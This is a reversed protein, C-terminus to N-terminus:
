AGAKRVTIWFRLILSSIPFIFNDCHGLLVNMTLFYLNVMEPSFTEDFQSRQTGLNECEFNLFNVVRLKM